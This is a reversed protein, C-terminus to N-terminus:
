ARRAPAPDRAVTAPRPAPEPVAARDSTLEDFLARFHVMAQRLDETSAEGRAQRVAIDHATRYNEVVVAHDVSLDAAQQDFDGVPYGRAEM